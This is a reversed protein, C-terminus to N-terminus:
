IPGGPTRTPTVTTRDAPYATTTAPSAPTRTAPMPTPYRAEDRSGSFRRESHRSSSQAFRGLALGALVTAAVFTVPHRRGFERVSDLMEPASKNQLSRSLSELGDAAQGVFGSVPSGDKDLEDRAKKVADAFTHLSEAAQGKLQEGRAYAEDRAGQAINSAEAKAKNAGESALRAASDKERKMRDKAADADRGPSTSGLTTRNEDVM